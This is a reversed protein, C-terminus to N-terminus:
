RLLTVYYHLTAGINQRENTTVLGLSQGRPCPIVNELQYGKLVTVLEEMWIDFGAKSIVAQLKPSYHIWIPCNYSFFNIHTLGPIGQKISLSDEPHLKVKDDGSPSMIPSYPMPAMQYQYSYRNYDPYYSNIGLMPFSASNGFPHSMRCEILPQIVKYHFATCHTLLLIGQDWQSALHILSDTLISVM